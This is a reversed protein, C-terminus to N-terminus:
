EGLEYRTLVLRRIESIAAQHDDVRVGILVGVLVSTGLVETGDAFYGVVDSEGGQYENALEVAAQETTCARVGEPDYSVDGLDKADPYIAVRYQYQSEGAVAGYVALLPVQDKGQSLTAMGGGFYADMDMTSWESPMWVKKSM